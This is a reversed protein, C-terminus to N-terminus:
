EKAPSSADPAPQGRVSIVDDLLVISRQRSLRAAAAVFNEYEEDDLLARMRAYLDAIAPDNVDRQIKHGGVLALAQENKSKPLRLDAVVGSLGAQSGARTFGSVRQPPGMDVARNIEDPNLLGDRDKDGRDLVAHMREPLEDRTVRADRNRDFSMLRAAVDAAARSQASASSASALIIGTTLVTWLLRSM